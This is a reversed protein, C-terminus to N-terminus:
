TSATLPPMYMYATPRTASGVDPPFSHGYCVLHLANDHLLESDVFLFHRRIGREHVIQAGVREVGDLQDHGEFLFEADLDRVVIGLLDRAHLFRDFVDLRM